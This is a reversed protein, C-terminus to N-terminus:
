KPEPNRKTRPLPLPGHGSVRFDFCSNARHAGNADDPPFDVVIDETGIGTRGKFSSLANHDLANSLADLEPLV